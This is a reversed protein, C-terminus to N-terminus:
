RLTQNLLMLSLIRQVPAWMGYIIDDCGGDIIHYFFLILTLSLNPKSSIPSFLFLILIEITAIIADAAM